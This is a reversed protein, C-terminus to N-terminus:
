ARAAPAEVPAVEATCFACRTAAAPIQSLCYPCKRVTPDLAPERRAQRVLANMPTVIFFFVVAAVLVFTVVQNIFDGYRFTSNNITFELSSFDPEGVIAAILPTILDAVFAQVMAAFAVGIVIGVAIEVLNGRLLFQKFEDILRM